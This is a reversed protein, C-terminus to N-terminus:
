IHRLMYVPVPQLAFLPSVTHTCRHPWRCISSYLLFYTLLTFLTYCNTFNVVGSRSQTTVLAKHSSTIMENM